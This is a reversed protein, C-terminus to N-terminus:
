WRATTGPQFDARVVDGTDSVIIDFSFVTMEPWDKADAM